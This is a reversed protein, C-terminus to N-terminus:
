PPWSAVCKAIIAMDEGSCETGSRYGGLLADFGLRRRSELRFREPCFGQRLVPNEPLDGADRDSGVVADPDQM